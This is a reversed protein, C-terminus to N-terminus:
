EKSLLIPLKRQPQGIKPSKAKVPIKAVNSNLNKCNVYKQCDHLNTINGGLLVL